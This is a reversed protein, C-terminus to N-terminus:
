KERLKQAIEEVKAETLIFKKRFVFLVAYGGITMAQDNQILATFMQKVSPSDVDVTSKEIM